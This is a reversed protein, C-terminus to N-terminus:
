FRRGYDVSTSAVIPFLPQLNAFGYHYLTYELFNLPDNPQFCFYDFEVGSDTVRAQKGVLEASGGLTVEIETPSRYDAQEIVVGDITVTTAPTFGTGTIPVVTGAPVVGMGAPIRGVSLTGRVTVSGSVVTSSGDPSLASVLSTGTATALVPVSIVIVPLGALQGIGGSASSYQIDIQPWKMSALGLADGNAGFLGVQPANGFFTQDLTVVIHGSAIATPRAAYIKIQAFGGAPATENSIQLAAVTNGARLLSTTLLVFFCFSPCFSVSARLITRIM